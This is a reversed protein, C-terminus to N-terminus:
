ATAAADHSALFRLTLDAVLAPQALPFFHGAGALIRTTCSPLVSRLQRSTPLCRSHEGYVALVPQAIGRLAAATLGAIEQLDDRVTTAQVLELWRAASRSASTGSFPVFLHQPVGAGHREQWEPSALRSLLEVGVDEQDADLEIGAAALTRQANEWDPWDRLRLNPQLARLRSDLVVLSAVRGPHQIACHLAVAGGFSHGVLHARRIDFHDLLGVVDGVMDLTTYGRPPMSSYGHGRLDFTLVRCRRALPMLLRLNWFAQNAGLGHILVVDEGHGIRACCLDLDRVTVTAM